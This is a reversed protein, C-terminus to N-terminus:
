IDNFINFHDAVKNIEGNRKEGSVFISYYICRGEKMLSLYYGPYIGVFYFSLCM